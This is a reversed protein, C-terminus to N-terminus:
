AEDHVVLQVGGFEPSRATYLGGATADFPTTLGGTFVWQGQEIREGEDALSRALWAVAAAPSGMAASGSGHRTATGDSFEITADALDRQDALGEVTASGIVVGSASSNDATNDLWTFDYSAWRPNVVEIGLAWGAAVSLIEEATVSPGEIPEAAIFVIEPEAKPHCLGGLDLRGKLVQSRWLTGWNPRDVNLAERMAKSTWGLKYGILTDGDDLRLADRRRAIARADAWTLGDIRESPLECWGGDLEARRLEHAIVDVTDYDIM